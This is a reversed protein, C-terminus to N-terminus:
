EKAVKIIAVTAHCESCELRIMGAFYWPWLPAEIHCQAHLAHPEHEGEGCPCKLKDLDQKVLPQM